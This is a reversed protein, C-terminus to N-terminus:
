AETLCLELLGHAGQPDNLSILLSARHEPRPSFGAEAMQQRVAQRASELDVASLSITEVLVVVWRGDRTRLSVLHRLRENDPPAPPESVARTLYLLFRITVERPAGSVWCVKKKDSPSPQPRIESVPIEVRFLLLAQNGTPHEVSWRKVHRDSNRVSEQRKVWSDTCSWQCAGSSHFSVKMDSGFMRSALYIEDGQTWLKWITSREAGRTGVAFRVHTRPSPV